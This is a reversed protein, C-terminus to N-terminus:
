PMWLFFKKKPEKRESGFWSGSVMVAMNEYLALNRHIEGKDAAAITTLAAQIRQIIMVM